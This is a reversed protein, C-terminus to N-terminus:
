SRGLAGVIDPILGLYGVVTGALLIAIATIRLFRPRSREGRARMRWWVLTVLGVAVITLGLPRSDAGLAAQLTLSGGIAVGILTLIGYAIGVSSQSSVASPLRRDLWADVLAMAPAASAVLAVLSAVVIPDHELIAFDPNFRDVLGFAGLGVAIPMAVLGRVVGQGPLWPAAVVWVVGFVVGALLGVFIILGLSGSVTVDGIRNGNETVLGTASPVLLAAIRMVVRGGIGAVVIGVLLGALGGRSIDRLIEGAPWTTDKLAVSM